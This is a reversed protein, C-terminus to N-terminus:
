ASQEASERGPTEAGSEGKSSTEPTSSSESPYAIRGHYIACLSKIMSEKIVSL